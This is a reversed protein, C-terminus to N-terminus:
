TNEGRDEEQRTLNMLKLGPPVVLDDPWVEQTDSWLGNLKIYTSSYRAWYGTPLQLM